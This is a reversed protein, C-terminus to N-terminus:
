ESPKSKTESKSSENVALALKLKITIQGTNDALEGWGDRCRLYLKGSRPVTFSKGAGIEFEESLEYDDLIVGLLKGSGDADGDATLMSGGPTLSWTGSAECEYTAEHDALVRTPQWGKAAQVKVQQSRTGKLVKFKAKWDWACLDIRYGAEITKLFFLYEFSIEDAMSGYVAEFSVKQKSLLGLGLPRFRERYNPNNELLHCLAWRWAYNQWSDGTQENSNVIENLSKPESERIYRIVGERCNVSRDGEKWYNGMEAMGEAYWVPGTTGFTQGCYAHVAEHQPTGHDAVAYVTSKAFFENGAVTVTTITLGAGNQLSEYAREPFADRPWNRLDKVVYCEIKQQCPKVWYKSILSLMTELRTVLEEAEDTALDTHILFHDSRFDRPTSEADAKAPNKKQEFKKEAASARGGGSKPICREDSSWSLMAVISAIALIRARNTKLM